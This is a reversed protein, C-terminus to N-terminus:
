VLGNPTLEDGAVDGLGESLKSAPRQEQAEEVGVVVAGGACRKLQAGVLEDDAAADDEVVDGGLRVVDVREALPDGRELHQGRAPEQVQM